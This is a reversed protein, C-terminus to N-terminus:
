NSHFCGLTQWPKYNSFRWGDSTKTMEETVKYTCLIVDNDTITVKELVIQHTDEIYKQIAVNKDPYKDSYSQPLSISDTYCYDDEVLFHFKIYSDTSEEILVDKVDGWEIHPSHFLLVLEGNDNKCINNLYENISIDDYIANEDFFLHIFDLFSEYSIGTYGFSSSDTKLEKPISPMVEDSIYDCMKHFCNINSLLTKQDDNLESNDIDSELKTRYISKNSLYYDKLNLLQESNDNETSQSTASTESVTTEPPATTTTPATATAPATTTTVVPTTTTTELVTEIVTVPPLTSASPTTVTPEPKTTTVYKSTTDTITTTSASTNSTEKPNKKQTINNDSLKGFLGTGVLLCICAVASIILKMHNRRYTIIKVSDKSETTNIIDKTQEKNITKQEIIDLIRDKQKDSLACCTDNIKELTEMDLNTNDTLINEITDKDKM